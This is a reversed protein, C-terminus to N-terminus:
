HGFQRKKYEYQCQNPACELGHRQLTAFRALKQYYVHNVTMMPQLTFRTIARRIIPPEPHNGSIPLNARATLRILLLNQPLTPLFVLTAFLVCHDRCSM